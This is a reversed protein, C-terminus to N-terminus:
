INVVQKSGKLFGIHTKYREPTRGLDQFHSCYGHYTEEAQEKSVKEEFSRISINDIIVNTDQAFNYSGVQVLINEIPKKYDPIYM